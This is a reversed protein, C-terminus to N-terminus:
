QQEGACTRAEGETGHACKPKGCFWVDVLQGRSFFGCSGSAMARCHVGSKITDPTAIQNSYGYQAM